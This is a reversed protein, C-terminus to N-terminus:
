RKSSIVSYKLSSVPMDFGTNRESGSGNCSTIKADNNSLSNTPSSTTETRSLSDSDSLSEAYDVDCIRTKSHLKLMRGIDSKLIANKEVVKIMM